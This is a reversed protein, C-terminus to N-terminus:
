KRLEMVLIVLTFLWGAGLALCVRSLAAIRVELSAAFDKWAEMAPNERELHERVLWPLGPTGGKFLRDVGFTALWDEDRAKAMVHAAELELSWHPRQWESTPPQPPSTDPETPNSM